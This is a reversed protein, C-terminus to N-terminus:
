KQKGRYDSQMRLAEATRDDQKWDQHQQVKKRKETIGSELEAKRVAASFLIHKEKLGRYETQLGKREEVLRATAAKMRALSEASSGISGQIGRRASESSQIAQRLSVFSGGFWGTLLWAIYLICGFVYILMFKQPGDPRSGLILAVLLAYAVLSLVVYKRQIGSSRNATTEEAM